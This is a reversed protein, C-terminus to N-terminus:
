FNFYLFTSVGSFSLVCWVFLVALSITGATHPKHSEETEFLNKCCFILIFAVLLFFFMCYCSGLPLTDLKFFKLVYFIEPLQFAGSIEKHVKFAQLTAGSPSLLTKLMQFAQGITDARFVTMTCLIFFFTVFVSVGHLFQKKWAPSEQPQSLKQKQNEKANLWIRTLVCLIGHMVGWLLYTWGAGHWIGSCLFVIMVNVYTRLTGKRSGGLPIYLYRTFFRSLTIHWRDWFETINAAKYPSLFNVAIRINFMLGLGRAMDCYGSFDLYIQFTYSLIVLFTNLADISAYHQFGWNAAIGFTDALLVKKALGLIFIRLGMYFNDFRFQKKSIDQFQPLMEEHSVIPGAILQPFFTVFLAYDSFAQRSVSGRSADILFGIQQFTFFSIGLPLLIDPVMS